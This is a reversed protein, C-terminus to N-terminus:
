RPAAAIVKSSRPRVQFGTTTVPPWAGACAGTCASMGGSDKVWLYVARGSGDTLVTGGSSSATKIVTAPNAGMFWPTHGSIQGDHVAFNLSLHHGEVSWGWDGKASPANFITFYYREPDRINGGKRDKELERLIGELSMITTTKGYGIQSLGAQMLKLALQRQESNMEKIQVGKREPLPIFHWKLRAPDDFKVTAQAQQAPALSELFQQASATMDAGTGVYLKMWGAGAVLLALAVVSALIPFRWGSKM